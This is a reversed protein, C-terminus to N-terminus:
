VRRCSTANVVKVSRTPQAFRVLLREGVGARRTAGGTGAQGVAADAGLSVGIRHRGIQPNSNAPKRITV